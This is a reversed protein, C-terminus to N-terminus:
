LSANQMGEFFEVELVPLWLISSCPVSIKWVDGPVNKEGWCVIASLAKRRALTNGSAAPLGCAFRLLRDIM